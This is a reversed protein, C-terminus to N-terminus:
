GLETSNTQSNLKQALLTVLTHRRARFRVQPRTLGQFWETHKVWQVTGRSQNRGSTGNAAIESPAFLIFRAM